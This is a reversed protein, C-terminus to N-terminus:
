SLSSLSGDIKSELNEREKAHKTPLLCSHSQDKIGPKRSSARVRDRAARDCSVGSRGLFEYDRWHNRSRSGDLRRFSAKKQPFLDAESM